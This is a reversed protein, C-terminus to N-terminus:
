QGSNKELRGSGPAVDAPHFIVASIESVRYIFARVPILRYHERITFVIRTITWAM